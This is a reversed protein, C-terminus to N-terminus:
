EKTLRQIGESLTMFGTQTKPARQFNHPLLTYEQGVSMSLGGVQSIWLCVLLSGEEDTKLM